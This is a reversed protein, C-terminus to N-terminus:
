NPIEQYWLIVVADGSPEVPVKGLAVVTDGTLEM